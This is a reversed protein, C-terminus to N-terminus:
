AAGEAAVLRQYLADLRQAYQEIGFEGRYSALGAAGIRARLAPDAALETIRAALADPDETPVLYGNEGDDILESPGEIRTAVVPLGARFAELVVLGFGEFVSPLAFLDAAAFYREPTATVGRFEVVDRLGLEDTLAELAPQEGGEGVLLVRLHPVDRRLIAAARLLTPVSKQVRLRGVFLVCFADDPIALERRLAARDADIAVDPIALYMMTSRDPPVGLRQEVHRTVSNSIGLVHCNPVIRRFLVRYAAFILRDRWDWKFYINQMTCVRAVRLKRSAWQGIFDAHGLQTHVVDPRIRELHGRVTRACHRDFPVHIVAVNAPLEAALQPEGKLYIVTVDHDVAHIRLSNVLLREAGGYVLSTIVHCIKM